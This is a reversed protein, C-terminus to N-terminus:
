YRYTHPSTRSNQIFCFYSSVLERVQDKLARVEAQVAELKALEENLRIIWHTLGAREYSHAGDRLSALQNHQFNQIFNITTDISSSIEYCIKMIWHYLRSKTFQRDDFM